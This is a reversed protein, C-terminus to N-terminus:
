EAAIVPQLAKRVYEPVMRKSSIRPLAMEVVQGTVEDGNEFSDRGAYDIFSEAPVGEALLLEHAETEVHYYTFGSMPMRAEQRITTGNTLTSANYLVNDIEIAHDPSVLLDQVPLGNGLAGASIRIPNVKEPNTLKTDVHQKGLWKVRTTGGRALTITDGVQLDQVNRGGEPTAIKTDAAFCLFDTIISGLTFGSINWSSYVTIIIKNATVSTNTSGYLNNKSSFHVIPSTTFATMATSTAFSLSLAMTLAASGPNSISVALGSPEPLVYGSVDLAGYPSSITFKINLNTPGGVTADNISVSSSGSTVLSIDFTASGSPSSFNYTTPM